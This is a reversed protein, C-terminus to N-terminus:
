YSFLSRLLVVIHRLAPENAIRGSRVRATTKTIVDHFLSELDLGIIM